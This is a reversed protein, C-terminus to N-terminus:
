RTLRFTGRYDNPNISRSSFPYPELAVLAISIQDHQVPKMDGTHLDYTSASHASQVAIRVIADGGQICFVDAPCRSDGMVGAFTLHISGDGVEATQGVGVVVQVDLPTSPAMMTASCSALLVSLVIPALRITHFGQSIMTKREM